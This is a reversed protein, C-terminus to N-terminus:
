FFKAKFFTKSLGLKRFSKINGLGCYTHILTSITLRLKVHELLKRIEETDVKIDKSASNGKNVFIGLEGFIEFSKTIAGFHSHKEGDSFVCCFFINFLGYFYNLSKASFVLIHFGSYKTLSILSGIVTSPTVRGFESPVKLM